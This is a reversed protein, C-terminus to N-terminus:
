LKFRGTLENLDKVVESNRDTVQIIDEISQSIADSSRAIDRTSTQVKRSIDELRAMEKLIMAAGQNMELSGDRIRVTINQIDDLAELVQRSGETQEKMSMSIEQILGNAQRIKVSVADFAEDAQASAGVITAITTVVKKLEGEIVKSQESSSEALKRIEDSVVSFGKGAEGAHAAEIAANMALLNTQSAIADIIENTELLQESQSSVDKVLDIVNQMADRGSSSASLLEEFGSGARELNNSISNINSVMQQIAASSETVSASQDEIQNTLSEINKAIEHITSSAETVSAGQEETQFNLDSVNATIAEIDNKIFGSKESLNGSLRDIHDSQGKISAIMGHLTEIFKNFYHGMDTTENRGVLKLRFTLDGSGEAIDKLTAATDKLPKAIRGGILISLIIVVVATLCTIVVISRQIDGMASFLTSEPITLTFWFATGPIEQAAVYYATRDSQSRYAHYPRPDDIMIRVGDLIPGPLDSIKLSDSSGLVTEALRGTAPDVDFKAVLTEPKSFITVSAGDGFFQPVNELHQSIQALLHDTLITLAVIGTVTGDEGIISSAIVFQKKGTSKSLVPTSVVTLPQAGSNETVLKKFYDRDLLSLPASEPDDNKATALWGKAPNGAIDSKWYSGDRNAVIFTDIADHEDTFKKLYDRVAPWEKGRIEPVRALTQTITLFESFFAGETASVNATYEALFGIANQKIMASTSLQIYLVGVFYPTFAISIFIIGLRQKLKM